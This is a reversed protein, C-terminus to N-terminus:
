LLMYCGEMLTSAMGFAELVLSGILQPKKFVEFHSKKKTPSMGNELTAKPQITGLFFLSLPRMWRELSPPKSVWPNAETMAM